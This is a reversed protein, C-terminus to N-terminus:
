RSPPRPRDTRRSIGTAHARTTSIKRFVPEWKTVCVSQPHMSPSCLAHSTTSTSLLSSARRMNGGANRCRSWGMLCSAGEGGGTHLLHKKMFNPGDLCPVPQLDRSPEFVLGDPAGFTGTWYGGPPVRSSRGSRGDRGVRGSQRGPPWVAFLEDPDDRPWLFFWSIDQLRSKGRPM